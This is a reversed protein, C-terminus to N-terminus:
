LESRPTERRLALLAVDDQLDAGTHNRVDDFVHDVLGM